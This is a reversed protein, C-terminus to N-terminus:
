HTAASALDQKKLLAVAQPYTLDPVPRFDSASQKQKLSLSKFLLIQGTGELDLRSLRWKGPALHKQELYLKSGKNVHGLLGWGINIDSTQTGDFKLIRKDAADIWILGEAAKFIITERTTTHFAPNPRFKLRITERGDVHESGDYTYLLGDPLAKVLNIFRDQEKQQDARKRKQEELNTALDSLRQDDAERETPTLSRGNVSILRAVIGDKTEVMDKIQSGSKTEKYLRYMWLDAPDANARVENAAADKVLQFPDIAQAHAAAAYALLVIAIHYVQRM